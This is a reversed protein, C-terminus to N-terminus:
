SRRQSFYFKIRTPTFKGLRFYIYLIRVTAYTWTPHQEYGRGLHVQACNRECNDTTKSELEFSLAICSVTASSTSLKSRKGSEVWGHTRGSPGYVRQVTAISSEAIARQLYRLCGLEKDYQKPPVITTSAKNVHKSDGFTKSL